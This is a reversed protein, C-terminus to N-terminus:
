YLRTALLECHYTVGLQTPIRFTGPILWQLLDGLKGRRLPGRGVVQAM